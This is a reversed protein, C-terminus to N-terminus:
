SLQVPAWSPSSGRSDSRDCLFRSSISVRAISSPCGEGVQLLLTLVLDDIRQEVREQRVRRGRGVSVGCRTVEEVDRM